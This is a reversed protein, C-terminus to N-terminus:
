AGAATLKPTKEALKRDMKEEELMELVKSRIVREDEKKLRLGFAVNEFVNM